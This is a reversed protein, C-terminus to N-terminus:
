PDINKNLVQEDEEGDLDGSSGYEEEEENQERYIIEPLTMKRHADPQDGGSSDSLTTPTDSKESYDVDILQHWIQKLSRM